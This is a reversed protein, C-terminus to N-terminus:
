VSEVEYDFEPPNFVRPAACDGPSGTCCQCSVHEEVPYSSCTEKNTKVNYIKIPIHRITTERAVCKSDPGEHDCLGVCRKVWVAGPHIEEYAARPKLVVFVEKPAGCKAGEILASRASHQDAACPVKKLLPVDYGDESVKPFKPHHKHVAKVVVCLVLLIFIKEM